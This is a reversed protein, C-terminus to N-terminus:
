YNLSIINEPAKRAWHTTNFKDRWISTHCVSKIKTLIFKVIKLKKQVIMKRIIINFKKTRMINQLVLFDFM